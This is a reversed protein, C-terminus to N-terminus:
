YLVSDAKDISELFDDLDNNENKKVGHIEDELLIVQEYLSKVNDSVQGQIFGDESVTKLIKIYSSLAKEFNETLKTNLKKLDKVNEDDILIDYNNKAMKGWGEWNM